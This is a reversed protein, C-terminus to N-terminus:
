KILKRERLKKTAGKTVTAKDGHEYRVGAHIHYRKPQGEGSPLYFEVQVDVEEKTETQM